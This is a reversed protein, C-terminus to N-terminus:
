KHQINVVKVLIGPARNDSLDESDDSSSLSMADPSDMQMELFLIIFFLGIM